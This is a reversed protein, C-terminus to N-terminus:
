SLRRRDPAPDDLNNTRRPDGLSARELRSPGKRIASGTRIGQQVWINEGYEYM